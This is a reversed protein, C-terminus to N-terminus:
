QTVAAIITAAIGILPILPLFFAMGLLSVVIMGIVAYGILSFIAGLIRGSIRFLFGTFRFFLFLLLIMLLIGMDDGGFRTPM